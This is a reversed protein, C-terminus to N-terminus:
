LHGENDDCSRRETQITVHGIKFTRTVHERVASLVAEHVAQDAIVVHASMANM